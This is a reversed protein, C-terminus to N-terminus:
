TRVLALLRHAQDEVRRAADRQHLLAVSRPGEDLPEVAREALGLELEAGEEVLDPGEEAHGRLLGAAELQLAVELAEEGLCAQDPEAAAVKQCGPQQLMGARGRCAGGDGALLEAPPDDNRM